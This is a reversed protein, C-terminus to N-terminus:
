HSNLINSIVPQIAACAVSQMDQPQSPQDDPSLGVCLFLNCLAFLSGHM